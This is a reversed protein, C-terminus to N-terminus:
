TWFGMGPYRRRIGLILGGVIAMGVVGLAWPRLRQWASTGNLLAHLKNRNYLFVGAPSFLDGTAPDYRNLGIKSADFVLEAADLAVPSVMLDLTAERRTPAPRGRTSDIVQVGRSPLAPLGPSDRFDSFFLTFCDGETGNRISHLRRQPDWKLELKCTASSAVLLEGERSLVTDGADKLWSAYIPIVAWPCFVWQAAGPPNTALTPTPTQTYEVRDPTSARIVEGDFFCIHAPVERWTKPHPSNFELWTRDAFRGDKAVVMKVVHGRGVSVSSATLDLIVTDIKSYADALDDLVGKDVVQAQVVASIACM